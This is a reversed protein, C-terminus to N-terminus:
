YNREFGNPKMEKNVVFNHLKEGSYPTILNSINLYSSPLSVDEGKALIKQICLILDDILNEKAKLSFQGRLYKKLLSFDKFTKM